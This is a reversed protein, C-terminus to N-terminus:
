RQDADSYFTSYPQHNSVGDHGNHRWHLSVHIMLIFEAGGNYFEYKMNWPRLWTAYAM